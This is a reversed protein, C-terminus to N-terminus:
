PTTVPVSITKTSSLNNFDTVTLIVNYTTVTGSPPVLPYIHSVSSFPAVGTGCSAPCSFGDGFNWTYTKIAVGSPTTTTSTFNVTAGAKAPTPSFVFDAVPPAPPPPPTTAVTVGTGASTTSQGAEDSVTLQVLYTGIAAYAHSVNVGSGSTGDGFTWQYSVIRHGVGPTSGAANFFVTQGPLPASPSFTFIPSPFSGAGVPVAQTTSAALGADNIVTLTVNYTQQGGFAHSVLAGSGQAGDGFSWVYSVITNLFGTCKGTADTVGCGGTSATANFQVPSNAGPTPPAFTFSAVPSGAPPLIVGPPVLRIDVFRASPAQANSGTLTAEISVVGGNGGPLPSSPPATFITTARGDKGTTISRPLLIGVDVVVGASTLSKGVVTDVRLTQGAKPAGNQDLVTAVITSQSAGDQSISDPTATMTVSTAFGSPGTAAPTTAQHVGCASLVLALGALTARLRYGM